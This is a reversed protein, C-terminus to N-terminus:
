RHGRRERRHVLLIALEEPAVKGALAVTTTGSTAGSPRTSIMTVATTGFDTFAATFSRVDVRGVPGCRCRPM